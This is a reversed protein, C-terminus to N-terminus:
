RGIWNYCGTQIVYSPFNQGNEPTTELTPLYYGDILASRPRQGKQGQSVSSSSRLGAYSSRRLSGTRVLYTPKPEEDRSSRRTLQPVPDSFDSFCDSEGNPPVGNARMLLGFDSMSQM